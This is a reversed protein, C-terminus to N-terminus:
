RSEPAGSPRDPASVPSVSVAPTPQPSPAAAGSPEAAEDPVFLRGKVNLVGVETTLSDVRVPVPLARLDALPNIRSVAATVLLSPVPVSGITLGDAIFLIKQEAEVAISGRLVSDVSANLVKAPMVLAVSGQGLLVQPHGLGRVKDAALRSLDEQKVDLDFTAGGVRKIQKKRTDVEIGHMRVSLREIVLGDKTRVRHGVITLDEVKGGLLQGDSTHEIKVVYKEAPGIIRPLSKRVSDEAIGRICGCSALMGFGVLFLAALRECPNMAPTTRTRM